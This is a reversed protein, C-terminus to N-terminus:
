PREDLYKTRSFGIFPVESEKAQRFLSRAAVDTAVVGFVSYGITTLGTIISEFQSSYGAENAAVWLAWLAVSWALSVVRPDIKIYIQKVVATLLVVMPASVPLYVLNFVGAMIQSFAQELRNEYAVVAVDTAAVIGIPSVFVGLVLVMMIFRLLSRLM